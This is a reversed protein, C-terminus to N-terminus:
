SCGRLFKVVLQVHSNAANVSEYCVERLCTCDRSSGPHTVQNSDKFKPSLVVEKCGLKLCLKNSIQGNPLGHLCQYASTVKM